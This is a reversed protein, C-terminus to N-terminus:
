QFAAGDVAGDDSREAPASWLVVKETVAPKCPSDPHYIFEIQDRSVKVTSLSVTVAESRHMCVSYPGREPLHSQHFERLVEESLSGKRRELEALFTKRFDIAASDKLSSSTLPTRGEADLQVTLENAGWEFLRAPEDVSLAMMTFPQYESLDLEDLRERVLRTYRSDLLDNVLLGRSRYARVAPATVGDYRNLLCLTLGFQNVGIWSGGHDGDVPAVYSIGNLNGVRPGLAPKRTRREDRNCMLVYGDPQRVWSVTCM